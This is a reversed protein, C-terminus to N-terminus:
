FYGYGYEEPTKCFESRKIIRRTATSGSDKSIPSEYDETRSSYFSSNKCSVSMPKSVEVVQKAGHIAYIESKKTPNISAESENTCNKDEPKSLRSRKLDIAIFSKAQKRNGIRSHIEESIRM